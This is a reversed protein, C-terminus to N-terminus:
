ESDHKLQRQAARQLDKIGNTASVLRERVPKPLDDLSVAEDEDSVFGAYWREWRESMKIIQALAGEV